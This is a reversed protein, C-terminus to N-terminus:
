ASQLQSTMESRTLDLQQQKEVLDQRASELQADREALQKDKKAVETEMTLEAQKVLNREIALNNHGQKMGIILADALGRYTPDTGDAAIAKGMDANYSEEITNMENVLEQNGATVLQGKLGPIEDVTVGSVGVMAKLISAQAAYADSLKQATALSETKESLQDQAERMGSFGFFTAVTLVVSILVLLIVAIFLGQNERTAM